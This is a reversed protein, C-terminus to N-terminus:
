DLMMNEPKLDRHAVGKNHCFSLVSLLQKFYLRIVKENFPGQKVYDFLEGFELLELVVYGVEKETKHDSKIWMSKESHNYMSCMYPHSMDKYQEIEDKLNKANGPVSLDFIKVAM